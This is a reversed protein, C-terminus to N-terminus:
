AQSDEGLPAVLAQTCTALSRPRARIVTHDDGGAAWIEDHDLLARDFVV